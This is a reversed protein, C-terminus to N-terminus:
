QDRPAVARWHDEDCRKGFFLDACTDKRRARYTEQALWEVFLMQYRVKLCSKPAV